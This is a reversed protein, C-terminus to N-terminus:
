KNSEKEIKKLMQLDETELFLDVKGTDLNVKAKVEIGKSIFKGKGTVIQLRMDGYTRTNYVKEM